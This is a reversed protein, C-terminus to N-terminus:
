QGAPKSAPATDTGAPAAPPVTDAPATAASSAPPNAPPAEAKKEDKCATLAILGVLPLLTRMRM